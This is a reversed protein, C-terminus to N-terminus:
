HALSVDPLVHHWLLILASETQISLKGNIAQVWAYLAWVWGCGCVCIRWLCCVCVCVGIEKLPQIVGIENNVAMVSVLATEPTIADALDQLNLLGNKQVPLYTM